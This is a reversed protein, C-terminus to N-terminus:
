SRLWENRWEEKKSIQRRFPVTGSGFVLMSENM